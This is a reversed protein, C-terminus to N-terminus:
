GTRRRRTKRLQDNEMQLANIQARLSVNETQLRNVQEHLETNESELNAIRKEAKEQQCQLESITSELLKIRDAKGSSVVAVIGAAVSGLTTIIAVIQETTM